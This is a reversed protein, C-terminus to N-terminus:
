AARELPTLPALAWISQFMAARLEEHTTAVCAAGFDLLQDADEFGDTNVAIVRPRVRSSLLNMLVHLANVGASGFDLVVTEPAFEEIFRLHRPEFAALEGVIEIGRMGALAHRAQLRIDADGLLLVTTSKM